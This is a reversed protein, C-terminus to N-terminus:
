GLAAPLAGASPRVSTSTSCAATTACSSSSASCLTTSTASARRRRRTPTTCVGPGTSSSTRPARTSSWPAGSPRAWTRAATPGCAMSSPATTARWTSSGASRAISETPARRRGRRSWRTPVAVHGAVGDCAATAGGWGGWCPTEGQFPLRHVGEQPLADHGRRGRARPRPVEHEQLPRLPARAHPGHAGPAAEHPPGPWLLLERHRFRLLLLDAARAFARQPPPALQSTTVSVLSPPRRSPACACLRQLAFSRATFPVRSTSSRGPGGPDPRPDRWASGCCRRRWADLGRADPCFILPGAQGLLM